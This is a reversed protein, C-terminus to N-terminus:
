RYVVLTGNDITEVWIGGVIVGDGFDFQLTQDAETAQVQVLVNGSDADTVYLDDGDAIDGGMWIMKKIKIPHAWWSAADTTSAEIFRMPNVTIKNNTAM